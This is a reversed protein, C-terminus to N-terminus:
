APRVVAPGAIRPILTQLVTLRPPAGIFRREVYAHFVWGAGVAAATVAPLVLFARMGLSSLGLDFLLVNGVAVVPLHALYIAYSRRGCARVPALWRLGTSAADWRYMGILVLAFLGGAATGTDGSLIGALGMGGLCADVGHRLLKPSNAPGNLRWHVALGAAFVHWYVPFLGDIEHLFGTDWAFVRYGVIALTAVGLTRFLRTPTLWLALACIFYFQEQYCLSWAVRTYVSAYHGGWVVPRWTETLTLNGLWQSATLTRPSDLQLAFDSRHLRELGFGDLVIVVAAFLFLAAWYTPYIRWLRRYLFSFPSRGERGASAVSSAICYGSMVFFLPSGINLSLLKVVGRQLQFAWGEGFDSGPWLVVAVHELVVLVCVLGRWVDLMQYRRKTGEQTPRTQNTTM